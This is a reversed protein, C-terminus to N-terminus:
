ESGKMEPGLTFGEGNRLIRNKVGRTEAVAAFELPDATNFEFMDYHCPVLLKIGASQALLVAETADLNGAVGREPRDGNIPLFALDIQHYRLIDDLGPFPRTDGPHYIKWPGIEVVYGMYLHHGRDDTTLTNHAAPIGHFRFGGLDKIEGAIIGRQFDIELGLRNSIFNRNAEPALFQLAPNLRILPLL